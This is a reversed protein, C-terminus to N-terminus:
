KNQNNVDVMIKDKCDCEIELIKQTIRMYTQLLCESCQHMDYGIKMFACVLLDVVFLLPIILFLVARLVAWVIVLCFWKLSVEEGGQMKHRFGVCKDYCRVEPLNPCVYEEAQILLTPEISQVWM